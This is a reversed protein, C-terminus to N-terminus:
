GRSSPAAARRSRASRRATPLSTRVTRYLPLPRECLAGIQRRRGDGSLITARPGVNPPPGVGMGLVRYRSATTATAARAAAPTARNTFPDCAEVPWRWARGAAVTDGASGEGSAGGAGADSAAGVDVVVVVTAGGWIWAVREGPSPSTTPTPIGATTVKSRGTAAASRGATSARRVTVVLGGTSPSQRQIVGAM